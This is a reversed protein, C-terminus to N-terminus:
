QGAWEYWATTVDNINKGWWAEDLGGASKELAEPETNLWPRIEPDVLEAAAKLTPACGGFSALKAQNAPDLSQQIWAYTAESSRAGKPVTHSSFSRLNGEWEIAVPTGQKALNGIRNNWTVVFDAGKNVLFQQSEAATNWFVLDDRISDYKAFARDLDLPYLDEPAVGDALLAIEVMGVPWNYVSRRGPIAGVDFFQEWSKPRPGAHDTRYASVWSTWYNVFGVDTVVQGRDNPVEIFDDKSVGLRDYDMSEFLESNGLAFYTECDFWDWQLRGTDVQTKFKGYDITNTKISLGTAATFPKGWAELFAAESTGGWTAISFSDIGFEEVAKASSTSSKAGGCAALAAVGGIGLAGGLVARRSIGTSRNM